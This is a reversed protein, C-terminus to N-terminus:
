AATKPRKRPCEIKTEVLTANITTGGTVRSTGINTKMTFVPMTLWRCDTIM